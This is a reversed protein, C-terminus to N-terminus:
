GFKCRKAKPPTAALQKSINAVDQEKSITDGKEVSENDTDFHCELEELM